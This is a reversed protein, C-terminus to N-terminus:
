GQQNARAARVKIVGYHPCRTPKKQGFCRTPQSRLDSELRREHAILDPMTEVRLTV